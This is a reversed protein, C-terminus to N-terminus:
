APRRKREGWYGFTWLLTLLMIAMGVGMRQLGWYAMLPPVEVNGTDIRALGVLMVVWVLFSAIRWVPKLRWVYLVLMLTVAFQAGAAGAIM